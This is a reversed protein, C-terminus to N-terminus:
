EVLRFSEVFSRFEPNDLTTKENFNMGLIIMKDGIALARVPSYLKTDESYVVVEFGNNLERVKGFSGLASDMVFQKMEPISVIHPQKIYSIEYTDEKSTWLCANLIGHKFSDPNEFEFNTVPQNLYFKEGCDFLYRDDVLSADQASNQTNVLEFSNFFVDVKSEDPYKHSLTNL